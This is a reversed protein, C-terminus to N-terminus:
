IESDSKDEKKIALNVVKDYGKHIIRVIEDAVDKPPYNEVYPDPIEFPPFGAAESFMKIRDRFKPFEIRLSEM